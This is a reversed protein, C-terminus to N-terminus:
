LYLLEQVDQITLQVLGCFAASVQLSRKLYRLKSQSEQRSHYLSQEKNDVKQELRLIGAELQAVRKRSAELQKMAASESIQLQVITRHLKGLDSTLYFFFTM